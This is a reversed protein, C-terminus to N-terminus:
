KENALPSEPRVAGGVAREQKFEKDRAMMSSGQVEKALYHPLEPQGNILDNEVDLHLRSDAYPSQLAADHIRNEPIKDLNYQYTNRNSQRPMTDNRAFYKAEAMAAGTTICCALFFTQKLYSNM